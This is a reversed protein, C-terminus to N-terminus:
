PSRAILRVPVTAPEANWDPSIRKFVGHEPEVLYFGRAMVLFSGPGLRTFMLEDRLTDLQEAGETSLLRAAVFEYLQADNSSFPAFHFSVKEDARSALPAFSLCAALALSAGFGTIKSLRTLTSKSM